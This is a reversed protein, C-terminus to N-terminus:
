ENEMFKLIEDVIGNALKRYMDATAIAFKRYMEQELCERNRIAMNVSVNNWFYKLVRRELENLDEVKPYKAM